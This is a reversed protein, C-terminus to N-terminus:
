SNNNEDKKSYENQIEDFSKFFDPDNERVTSYDINFNETPILAHTKWFEFSNPKAIRDWPEAPAPPGFYAAVIEFYIEFRRLVITFTNTSQPERYRVFRSFGKKGKRKAYFIDDSSTTECAFTLGQSSYNEIIIEDKELDQSTLKLLPLIEYLKEESDHMLIIRKSILIGVGNEVRYIKRIDFAETKGESKESQRIKFFVQDSLNLKDSTNNKHFFIRENDSQIFGYDGNKSFNFVIGIHNETISM